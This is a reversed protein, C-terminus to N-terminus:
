AYLRETIDAMIYDGVVVPCPSAIIFLRDFDDGRIVDYGLIKGLAYKRHGAQAIDKNMVVEIDVKVFDVLMELFEIIEAGKLFIDNFIDRRM